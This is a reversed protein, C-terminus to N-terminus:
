NKVFYVTYTRKGIDVSACIDNLIEADAVNKKIVNLIRTVQKDSIEELTVAYGRTKSAAEVHKGNYYYTGACGCRCLHAKGSYASQIMDLTLAQIKEQVQQEPTLQM